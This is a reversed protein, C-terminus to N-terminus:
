QEFVGVFVGGQILAIKESLKAFKKKQEYYHVLHNKQALELALAPSIYAHQTNKQGFLRLKNFADSYDPGIVDKGYEEKWAEVKSDVSVISRSLKAFSKLTGM